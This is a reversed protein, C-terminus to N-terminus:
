PVQAQLQADVQSQLQHKAILWVGLSAAAVTVAIAAAILLTLRQRFSV